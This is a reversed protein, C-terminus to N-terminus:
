AKKLEVVGDAAVEDFLECACLERHEEISRQPSSGPAVVRKAQVLGPLSPTEMEAPPISIHPALPVITKVLTHRSTLMQGTRATHLEDLTTGGVLHLEGVANMPNMQRFIIPGGARAATEKAYM